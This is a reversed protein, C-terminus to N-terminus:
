STHGAISGLREGEELGGVLVCHQSSCQGIEIDVWDGNRMLARPTDGALMADRPVLLRNPITTEVDVRVSMGPVLLVDGHGDELEIAVDFGRRESFIRQERAIPTFGVIRGSIELDPEIDPTCRVPSGVAIRGDDVDSLTAKVELRDLDPIALITWGVFANDGVQFKRDEWPHDDVVVIGDRPATLILTDLAKEAVGLEREAKQYQEEAVKVDAEVSTTTSRLDALAKEHDASAKIAALELTRVDYRSRISLPVSADIEAKAFAIRAREVAAEAERLRAEGQARNQLLSRRSLQLASRQQDLNASFSSNDFEVVVDGTKVMAGDPAIWQIQLRRERTKPVKVEAREVAELEGTLLQRRVLDGRHVRLDNPSSSVRDPKSCGVATTLTVITAIACSARNFQSYTRVIVNM